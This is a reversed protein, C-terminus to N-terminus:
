GNNKTDSPTITEKLAQVDKTLQDIQKEKEILHLTLEEIKKLLLANMAGLEIGNQEVETASPIEPLHGNQQIYTEIERLRSLDYGDEFVTDAWYKIDVKVSRAHVQGNVELKVKPEKKGIGMNGNTAIYISKAEQANKLLVLTGDEQTSTTVAQKSTCSCITLLLVLSTFFFKM